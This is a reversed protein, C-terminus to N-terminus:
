YAVAVALVAAAVQLASAGDCYQKVKVGSVGLTTAPAKFEVKTKEKTGWATWIAKPACNTTDSEVSTPYLTKWYATM